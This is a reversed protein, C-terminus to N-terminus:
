ISNLLEGTYAKKATSSDDSTDSDSSEDVSQGANTLLDSLEQYSNVAPLPMGTDGDEPSILFSM